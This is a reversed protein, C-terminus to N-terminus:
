IAVGGRAAATGRPNREPKKSRRPIPPPEEFEKSRFPGRRYGGVFRGAGPVHKAPEGALAEFWIRGRTSITKENM